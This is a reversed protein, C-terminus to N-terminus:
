LAQGELWQRAVAGAREALMALRGSPVSRDRQILLLTDATPPTVYVNGDPGETVLWQWDGLGLMRATREAEQAAGALFAAVAESVDVGKEGEIRGGLVRGRDDVLLLGNGAGELGAFVADEGEAAADEQAAEAEAAAEAAAGRVTHLARIVSQDSPNAALALELHELAGDLDGTRFNLFGLGKHAGLHRPDSDLVRTWVQVAREYTGADVLVRAYLDHAELLDPHHELGGLVVREAHELQGRQRLAEALEVFVLSAPDRALEASMTKIDSAM